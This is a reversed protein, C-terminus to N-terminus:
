IPRWQMKALRRKKEIMRWIDAIWADM